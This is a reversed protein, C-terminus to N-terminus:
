KGAFSSLTHIFFFIPLHLYCPGRYLIKYCECHNEYPFSQVKTPSNMELGLEIKIKRAHVKPM